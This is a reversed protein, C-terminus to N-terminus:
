VFSIRSDTDNVLLSNVEVQKNEFLCGLSKLVQNHRWTYRGQTLSTKCGSLIHQLSGVGMCMKCRKDEGVWERFNKLTPLVIVILERLEEVLGQGTLTPHCLSGLSKVPKVVISPIVEGDIYFVRKWWNERVSLFM